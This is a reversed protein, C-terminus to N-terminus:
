RALLCNKDNSLTVHTVPKPMLDSKMKGARIDYTRIKHDVSSTIIENESVFVSEISDKAEELSQIPTYNRSRM